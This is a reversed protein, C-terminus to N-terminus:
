PRQRKVSDSFHRKESFVNKTVQNPLFINDVIGVLEFNLLMAKLIDGRSLSLKSDKSENWSLFSCHVRRFEIEQLCVRNLHQSCVLLFIPSPWPWKKAPLNTGIELSNPSPLPNEPLTSIKLVPWLLSGKALCPTPAWNATQFAFSGQTGSDQGLRAAPLISHRRESRTLYSRSSVPRGSNPFTWHSHRVCDAIHVLPGPRWSCRELIVLIVTPSAEKFRSSDICSELFKTLCGSGGLSVEFFPEHFGKEYKRVHRCKNSLHM